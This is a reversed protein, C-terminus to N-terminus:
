GFTNKEQTKEILFLEKPKVPILLIKDSYTTPPLIISNIHSFIINRISSVCNIKVAKEIQVLEFDFLSLKLGSM